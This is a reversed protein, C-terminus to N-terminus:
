PTLKQDSRLYQLGVTDASVWRVVARCTKAGLRPQEVQLEVIAGNRLGLLGKIRAGSKSTDVFEIRVSGFNKATLWATGVCPTRPEMRAEFIM